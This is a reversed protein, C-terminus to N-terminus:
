ILKACSACTQCKRIRYDDIRRKAMEGVNEWYINGDPVVCKERTPFAHTVPTQATPGPRTQVDM